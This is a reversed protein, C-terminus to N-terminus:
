KRRGRAMKNWRHRKDDKTQRHAPQNQTSSDTTHPPRLNTLISKVLPEANPALTRTMTWQQRRGERPVNFVDTKIRLKSEEEEPTLTFNILGLHDGEKITEERHLVLFVLSIVGNSPWDRQARTLNIGVSITIKDAPQVRNTEADHPYYKALSVPIGSDALKGTALETYTPGKGHSSTPELRSFVDNVSQWTLDRAIISTETSPPDGSDRLPAHNPQIEQIPM